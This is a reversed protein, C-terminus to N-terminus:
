LSVTLSLFAFSLIDGVFCIHM